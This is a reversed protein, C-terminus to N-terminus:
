GWPTPLAVTETGLFWVALPVPAVALAVTLAFAPAAYVGSLGAVLAIGGGGGLLANGPLNLLLALALYRHRLLWPGWRGPVQETLLALRQARPRGDFRAILGATRTWGLRLAGRALLRLPVMRGVAFALCLGGLTAAYVYPAATRGFMGLLAVGIEVGPVFPIALVLAYIVGSVAIGWRVAAGDGMTFGPALAELAWTGLRNLALVAAVVAALALALRLVPRSRASM